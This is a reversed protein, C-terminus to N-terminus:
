VGESTTDSQTPNPARQAQVAKLIRTYVDPEVNYGCAVEWELDTKEVAAAAEERRHILDKLQGITFGKKFGLEDTTM